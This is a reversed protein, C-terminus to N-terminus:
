NSHRPNKPKQKTLIEICQDCEKNHKNRLYPWKHGKGCPSKFGGEHEGKTHQRFNSVTQFIRKPDCKLCEWTQDTHSQLHQFMNKNCTFMRKCKPWTCQLKGVNTHIRIHNRQQYPFQFTQKCYSCGYKFEFHSQEHKYCANYTDFRRPCEACDYKFDPHNEAIHKNLKRISRHEEECVICKVPKLEKKRKVIGRFQIGLQGKKTPIKLDEPEDYSSSHDSNFNEPLQSADSLHDGIPDAEKLSNPAATRQKKGDNRNGSDSETGSDSSIEKRKPSNGEKLKADVAQLKIILEKSNVPTSLSSNETGLQNQTDSPSATRTPSHVPTPTKSRSRTPTIAPSKVPTQSRSRPPTKVPSKVPSPSRSRIPTQVPSKVPSVTKPPTEETASANELPETGSDSSYIPRQPTRMGYVTSLSDNSFGDSPCTDCFEHVPSMGLQPINLNEWNEGNNNEDCSGCSDAAFDSFSIVNNEALIQLAEAKYAKAINIDEESLPKRVPYQFTKPLPRTDFFGLHGSYGLIIDCDYPLLNKGSTWVWDRM